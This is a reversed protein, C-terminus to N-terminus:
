RCENVYRCLVFTIVLTASLIRFGWCFVAASDSSAKTVFNVEPCCQVKIAFISLARFTQPDDVRFGRYIFYM